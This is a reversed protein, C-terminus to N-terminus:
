PIAKVYHGGSPQPDRRTSVLVRSPGTLLGVVSGAIRLRGFTQQDSEKVEDILRSGHQPQRCDGSHQRSDLWERSHSLQMNTAVPLRELSHTFLLSLWYPTHDFRPCGASTPLKSICDLLMSHRLWGTESRVVQPRRGANVRSDTTHVFGRVFSSLDRRRCAIRAPDPPRRLEACVPLAFRARFGSIDASYGVPRRVNSSADFAIPGIGKPLHSWQEAQPERYM